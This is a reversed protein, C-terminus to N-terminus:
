QNFMFVFHLPRLEQSTSLLLTLLVDKGTDATQCGQAQSAPSLHGHTLM